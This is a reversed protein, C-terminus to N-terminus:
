QSQMRYGRRDMREFYADMEGDMLQVLDSLAKPRFIPAVMKRQRTHADGTAVLLGKGLFQALASTSGDPKEYNDVNKRLVHQILDPDVTLINVKNYRLSFSYTDGYRDLNENIFPIPNKMFRQLRLISRYRPAQPPLTAQQSM